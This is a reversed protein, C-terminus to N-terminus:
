PTVVFLLVLLCLGTAKHPQLGLKNIGIDLSLADLYIVLLSFKGFKVCASHSFLRYNEVQM